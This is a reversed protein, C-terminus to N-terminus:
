RGDKAEKPLRTGDIRNAEFNVIKWNGRADRAYVRTYLYDGSLEGEPTSAQVEAQSTVLATRGYFRVKRNSMTLTTFRWRGSRLGALTQDKNQLTGFPTIAMYDDALLTNMRATDGSLIADRWQRELRDIVLRTAHKKAKSLGHHTQAACSWGALLLFAAILGFFVFRRRPHPLTALAAQHM